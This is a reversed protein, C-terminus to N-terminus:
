VGSPDLADNDGDLGQSHVLTDVAEDLIGLIETMATWRDSGPQYSDRYYELANGVLVLSEFLALAVSM